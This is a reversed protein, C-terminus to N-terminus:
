LTKIYYYDNMIRKVAVSSWLQINSMQAEYDVQDTYLRAKDELLDYYYLEPAYGLDQWGEFCAESTVIIANRIQKLIEDPWDENVGRKYQLTLGAISFASQKPWIVKGHYHYTSFDMEDSAVLLPGVPTYFYNPNIIKKAFSDVEHFSPNGYFLDFSEDLHSIPMPKNKKGHLAISYGIINDPHYMRYKGKHTQWKKILQDLEIEDFQFLANYDSIIRLCLPYFVCNVDYPALPSEQGPYASNSDRWNGVRYYNENDKKKKFSIYENSRANNVIFHAVKKLKNANTSDLIFKSSVYKLGLIYHPEIDIMKRDIIDQIGSKTISQGIFNEHWGEGEDSIHELARQYMYDITEESFDESGLDASEMWDRPFITGYEFSSTKNNKILHDICVSSEDYIKELFPSFINQRFQEKPVYLSANYIVDELNNITKIVIQINNDTTSHLYFEDNKYDMMVEKPVQIRVGYEKKNGLSDVYKNKLSLINYADDYLFKVKKPLVESIKQIALAEYSIRPRKQETYDRITRIDTVLPCHTKIDKINSGLEIVLQKNEIYYNQVNLEVQLPLTWGLFLHNGPGAIRLQNLDDFDFYFNEKLYYNLRSDM